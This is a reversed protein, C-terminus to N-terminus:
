TDPQGSQRDPGNGGDSCFKCFHVPLASIVFLENSTVEQCLLVRPMMYNQFTRKALVMGITPCNEYPSSRFFFYAQMLGRWLKHFVHSNSIGCNYCLINKLGISYPEKSWVMFLDQVINIPFQFLDICFPFLKKLVSM